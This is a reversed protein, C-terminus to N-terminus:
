ATRAAAPPIAEVVPVTSPITIPAPKVAAALARGVARGRAATRDRSAPGSFRGAVSASVVVDVRARDLMGWVASLGTPMLGLQALAGTLPPASSILAAIKTPRERPVRALTGHPGAVEAYSAVLRRLLAITRPDRARLHSPVGLVLANAESLLAAADEIAPSRGVCRGSHVCATCSACCAVFLDFLRVTGLRGQAHVAERSADRVARGLPGGGIPSADVAALRM